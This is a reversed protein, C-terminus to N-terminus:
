FDYEQYDREAIKKALQRKTIQIAGCQIARKKFLKCVDFHEKRTGEKQIHKRDLFISDAMRLLESHSDAIMHSMLMGKYPRDMDDVYVM